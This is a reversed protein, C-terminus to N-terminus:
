SWIKNLDESLRKVDYKKAIELSFGSPKKINLAKLMAASFLYKDRKSIVYGNIGNHVMQEAGSVNTSVIPLGCSLEELMALSWGEYFSTIIALNASKMYSIVLENSIFGTIFVNTIINKEMLENELKPRDEGDGIFILSVNKENNLLEAFSEIAFEWGKVRNIRGCTIIIKHSAPINFINKLAKASYSEIKALDIRTPFHFIKKKLHNKNKYNEITNIDASALIIKANNLGSIFLRNFIRHFLFAWKYRSMTLPNQMGPFCYCINLNYAKRLFIMVEPAQVFVYKSLKKNIIKYNFILKLYFSLRSPIVPKIKTPDKYQVALYDFDVGRINLKIWQGTPIEKSTTIGILSLEGEYVNILQTVFNLQGGIPFRIFDCPEIITIYKM